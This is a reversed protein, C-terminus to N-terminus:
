AVPLSQLVFALILLVIEWAFVKGVRRWFQGNQVGQRFYAEVGLIGILWFIGLFLIGFQNIVTLAYRYIGMFQGLQSIGLTLAQMLVIGIGAFIIWFLYCAIYLPWLPRGNEQDTSM